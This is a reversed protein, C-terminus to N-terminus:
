INEKLTFALRTDVVANISSGPKKHPIMVAVCVKDKSLKVMILNDQTDFSWEVCDDSLSDLRVTKEFNQIYEPKNEFPLKTRDTWDPCVNDNLNNLWVDSIIEKGDLLYAYVVPEEIEMIVSFNQQEPCHVQQFYDRIM